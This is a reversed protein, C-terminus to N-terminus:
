MKVWEEPLLDKTNNKPANAFWNKPAIVIKDKNPNLWAGWWSFSSNAIVHHRCAAMLIMDEYNKDSPNKVCTLPFPLWKFNEEVWKHDDSFLFFHPNPVKKSIFEVANKYYESSCIGHWAASMPRSIYDGRRVHLSVANKKRIDDMIGQSYESLPKILSVEKRIEDEIHKFYKESQWVGSFCTNDKSFMRPNFTFEKELYYLPFIIKDIHLRKAYGYIKNFKKRRKRMWVLGLMAYDKAIHGKTRFHDLSYEWPDEEWPIWTLSLDTKLKSAVGRGFAYQFLQNGLGGCIITIIM